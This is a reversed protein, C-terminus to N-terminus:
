ENDNVEKACNCCLCVSRSEQWDYNFVATANWWDDKFQFRGGCKFCNLGTVSFELASWEKFILNIYKTM